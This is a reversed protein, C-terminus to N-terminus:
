FSEFKWCHKKKVSVGGKQAWIQKTCVCKRNAFNMVTKHWHIVYSTTIVIIIYIIIYNIYRYRYHDGLEYVDKPIM